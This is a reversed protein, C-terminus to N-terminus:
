AETNFGNAHLWLNCRAHRLGRVRIEAGFLRMRQQYGISNDLLALGAPLTQETQQILM